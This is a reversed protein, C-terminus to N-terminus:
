EAACFARGHVLSVFYFTFKELFKEKKGCSIRTVRSKARLILYFSKQVFYLSYNIRRVSANGSFDRPSSSPGSPQATPVRNKGARRYFDKHASRARGAASQAASVAAFDTAGALAGTATRECGVPSNLMTCREVGNPVRGFAEGKAFPATPTGQASAGGNPPPPCIGDRRIITDHRGAAARTGDRRLIIDHRGATLRCSRGARLLPAYRLRSM